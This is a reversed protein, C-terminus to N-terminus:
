LKTEDAYRCRGTEMLTKVCQGKVNEKPALSVLREGCNHLLLVMAFPGKEYLPRGFRFTAQGIQLPSSNSM